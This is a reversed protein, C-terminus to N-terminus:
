APNVSRRLGLIPRNFAKNHQEYSYNALLLADVFDDHGGVPHHYSIKGGARQTFTFALLQEILHPEPLLTVTKLVLQMRLSEVLEQKSSQSMTFPKVAPYGGSGKLASILPDGIGNSEAYLIPKYLKLIAGLAKIQDDWSGKFSEIYVLQRNEDLIALITDDTLRGWDIGAFFRKKHTTSSENHLLSGVSHQLKRAEEVELTAEKIGSFVEGGDEIFVALYEQKFIAEPLRLRADDIERTDYYPNDSYLMQYYCYNPDKHEEVLARSALSYFDNHVGKPTSAVIIKAKKKAATTPRIIPNFVNSKFFSFEDLIVIDYSGGRLTDPREASKFTIRTGKRTTIEFPKSEKKSQIYPAFAVDALINDWIVRVQEYTPSVVLIAPRLLSFISALKSILFSKGSQRSANITHFKAESDLIAKAIEVQKKHLSRVELPRNTTRKPNDGLM